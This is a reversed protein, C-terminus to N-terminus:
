RRSRRKKHRKMKGRSQGSESMSIAIAQRRDKVVPGHKSGSRLEGHKFKHMETQMRAKRARKSANRKLRPM